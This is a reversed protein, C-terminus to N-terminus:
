NKRKKHEKHSKLPVHGDIDSRLRWEALWLFIMNIVFTIAIALVVRTIQLCPILDDKNSLYECPDRKEMINSFLLIGWGFTLFWSFISIIKTTSINTGRWPYLCNNGKKPEIYCSYIKDFNHQINYDEYKNVLKAFNTIWLHYGKSSCHFFFAAIYGLSLIL